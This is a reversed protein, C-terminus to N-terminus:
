LVPDAIPEILYAGHNKVNGVDRSVPFWEFADAQEVEIHAMQEAQEPTVNPDLWARAVAPPLVLPKRDHVDILGADADSTLIVFGDNEDPENPSVTFQGIAAFLLPEGSALRIFYPQKVKPNEPDKKWEYWGDAGVIARGNRWISKFFKGTAVTEVRANIPAPRKGKAWFPSWGWPVMGGSIGDGSSHMVHVRTTPAVNYRDVPALGEFLDLGLAEAYHHPTQYQVFRGCM